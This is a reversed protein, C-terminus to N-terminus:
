NEGFDFKGQAVAREIRKCAAEFYKEEIEIGIFKRGINVCVMGTTGSGM